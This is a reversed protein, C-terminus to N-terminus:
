HVTQTEPIGLESQLSKHNQKAGLDKYSNLNSKSLM